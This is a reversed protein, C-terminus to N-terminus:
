EVIVGEQIHDFGHPDSGEAIRKNEEIVQKPILVTALFFLLPVIIVDDLQGALPVFDPIFDIPSLLYAIAAVIMIKSLWPTRRDKLLLRYLKIDSRLRKVMRRLKFKM